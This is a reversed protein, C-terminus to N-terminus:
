VRSSQVAAPVRDRGFCHINQFDHARLYALLELMSQYSLEAYRRQFRAHRGSALWDKVIAEFEATTVGAHTAM